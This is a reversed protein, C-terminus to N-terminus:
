IAQFLYYCALLLFSSVKNPDVDILEYQYLVWHSKNQDKAESNKNNEKKTRSPDFYLRTKEAIEKKSDSAKVKLRTGSEKWRGYNTVRNIPMRKGDPRKHTAMNIMKPNKKPHKYTKPYIFYRVPDSSTM